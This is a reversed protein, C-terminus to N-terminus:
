AGQSDSSSPKWRRAARLYAVSWAAGVAIGVYHLSQDPVRVGSVFCWLAYLHTGLVITLSLRGAWVIASSMRDGTDDDLFFAAALMLGVPLFTILFAPMVGVRPKLVDAVFLPGGCYSFLAALKLVGERM